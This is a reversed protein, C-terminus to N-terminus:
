KVVVYDNKSPKITVFLKIWVSCNKRFSGDKPIITFLVYKDGNENKEEYKIDSILSRGKKIKIKYDDITFSEPIDDLIIINGKIEDNKVNIDTEILV